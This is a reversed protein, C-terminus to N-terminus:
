YDFKTSFKIVENKIENIKEITLEDTEIFNIFDKLKLSNIKIQILQAFKIIEDLFKAVTIMDTENLGRTTLTPTGLRIGGPSVASKDGPVSNKNISINVLECLKEIKNGSINKNNLDILIIHNDTGGSCVKYDMKILENSLAKANSKVKQIYKKFEPKCVQKLQTAIAAIQNDHPGGQLSPFVAENIQKEYDKKCFIMGARPGRLTKHTTSTVIDCYDFPNDLEQTAVFGSFHSMDCMLLSNNADAIERFRKYDLDRSYASYGCIIIKPKFKNALLELEDYNIIGKDDVSYPLSEFYISSASVKKKHTYFGHTLHGGSPLDLGMIRDHPNLLASYVAFNASSGSYPQVNIGWEEENLRFAELARKKCLNEIKDIVENGGYYRKGPYGESYKNTLVSGLCEMVSVSTINESAILELGENQRKKELEILDYLETDCTKLDQKLTDM